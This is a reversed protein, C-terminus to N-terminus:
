SSTDERPSTIEGRTDPGHSGTEGRDVSSTERRPERVIRLYADELSEAPKCLTDIPGAALVRGDRLVLIHDCIREVETLLHSSVLLTAGRARAAAIWDRADHIGVPDLGSAPEDLLLLEPTGLLAQAFGLRQALGKSLAGAREDAHVALGSEDLRAAVARELASGALGALRGHLHLVDNVTM